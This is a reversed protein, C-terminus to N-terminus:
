IVREGICLENYALVDNEEINYSGSGRKSVDIARVESHNSLGSPSVRANCACYPPTGRKIQYAHSMYSLSTASSDGRKRKRELPMASSMPLRNPRKHVMMLARIKGRAFRLWNALGKKRMALKSM